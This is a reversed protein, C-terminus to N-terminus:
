MLPQVLQFPVTSTNIMYKAQILLFYTRNYDITMNRFNLLGKEKTFLTPNPNRQTGKPEKPNKFTKKPYKPRLKSSYIYGKKTNQVSPNQEYVFRKLVLFVKVRILTPKKTWRYPPPADFHCM